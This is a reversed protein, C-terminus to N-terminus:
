ASVKRNWLCLTAYSRYPRWKEAMAMIEKKSPPTGETALAKIVGIDSAPFSDLMGLGRMAVYNVTWEGIGKLKSFDKSFTDFSQNATLQVDRDLIGQAATKITAQRTRTVGLGGLDLNMLESPTPFFHDLGQPFSNGTEMAAQRAVRAALTTAAKVSIQQGLIARVVFEFPDFAIPLRPVHGEVMGQVLQKDRAFKKNIVTFDTDLDFMRRVRNHIEMYCKIDDCAIRLELASREPNDKVVFFGKARDTRFTRAYSNETIVEMGKMARPKMFSLIHSFNFPKKYKLLLTTNDQSSKKTMSEERVMTPPKGFIEKFVDNFQRISGFGSAFAIDTVSQDSFLLLKKAFLSKHYRAIKIPPVGLHDVFLKRLHRDSLHLEKALDQIANYNLYGDYIKGLATNVVSAGHINGNYYEVEVDPKCRYCPRFGKEIAEFLTNFYIVNEEKAVPSPCSPRCFIGTTKVGFLFTGDFNKDKKIRARSFETNM